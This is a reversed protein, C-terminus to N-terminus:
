ARTNRSQYRFAMFHDLPEPLSDLYRARAITREPLLETICNVVKQALAARRLFARTVAECTYSKERILRVLEPADFSTIKLEENTLFDDAIRSVNKPFTYPLNILPPQVDAVSADRLGLDAVYVRFITGRGGAIIYIANGRSTNAQESLPM